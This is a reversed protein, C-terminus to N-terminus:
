FDKFVDDLNVGALAFTVAGNKGRGCVIRRAVVLEDLADNFADWRPKPRLDQWLTRKAIPEDRKQLTKIINERDLAVTRTKWLGNLEVLGSEHKSVIWEGELPRGIRLNSMEFTYYKEGGRRYMRTGMRSSAVAAVGVSGLAADIVSYSDVASKQSHHSMLFNPGFDRAMKTLPQQAQYSQGYKDTDIQITAALTDGVVLSPRFNKVIERLQPMGTPNMVLADPVVIVGDELGLNRFTKGAVIESMPDGALYLVRGQECQRGFFDLGKVISYILAYILTSKGTESKGVILSLSSHPLIGDWVWPRRDWEDIVGYLQDLTLPKIKDENTEPLLLQKVPPWFGDLVVALSAEREETSLELWAPPAYHEVIARELEEAMRDRDVEPVERKVTQIFGALDQEWEYIAAERARSKELAIVAPLKHTGNTTVAPTPSQPFFSKIDIAAM